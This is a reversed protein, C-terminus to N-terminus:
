SEISRAEAEAELEALELAVGLARTIKGAASVVKTTGVIPAVAALVSRVDRVDLGADSAAGINLLYSAAPADVAILAALRVLMFEGDELDSAALSDATMRGILDLVPTDTATAM